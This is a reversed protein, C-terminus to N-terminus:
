KGADISGKGDAEGGNRELGVGAVQASRVGLGVGLGSAGMM